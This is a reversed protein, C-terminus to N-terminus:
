IKVRLMVQDPESASRICKYEVEMEPITTSSFIMNMQYRKAYYGSNLIYQNLIQHTYANAVRGFTSVLYTNLKVRPDRILNWQEEYAIQKLGYYEEM